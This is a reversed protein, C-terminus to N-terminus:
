QIEGIFILPRTFFINKSTISLTYHNDSKKTEAVHFKFHAPM